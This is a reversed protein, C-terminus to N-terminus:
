SHSGQAGLIWEALRLDAPRTVKLNTADNEVLGVPQGCLEMASAEDTISLGQQLCQSLAAFLAQASFCQPTQAQWLHRRDLTNAIEPTLADGTSRKLTDAVPQALIAGRNQDLCAQWLRGLASPQVCPRAADHVMVWSPVQSHRQIYELGALVSQARDAGGTVRRVAPSQAVALQEFRNDDAALAVVVGMLKGGPPSFTLLRKLTHSILAEGLLPLYQKPIAEGMRSGSGAAPVVFWLPREETNV